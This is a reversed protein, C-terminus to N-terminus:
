RALSRALALELEAEAHRGRRQLLAGHLARYDAARPQKAIAAMVWGEAGEFDSQALRVRALGFEARADAESLELARGFLAEALRDDDGQLAREGEALLAERMREPEAWLGSTIREVAEREHGSAPSPVLKSALPAHAATLAVEAERARPADPRQESYRLLSAASAALMVAFVTLSAWPFRRPRHADSPTEIQPLRPPRPLSKVAQSIPLLQEIDTKHSTPQRRPVLEHTPPPFPAASAVALARRAQRPSAPPRSDRVAPPPWSERVVPAVSERAPPASDRSPPVSDRAGRSGAGAESRPKGQVTESAALRPPASPREAPRPRSSTRPVGFASPRPVRSRPSGGAGDRQGAADPRAHTGTHTPDDRETTASPDTSPDTRQTRM